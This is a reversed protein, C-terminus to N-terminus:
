SGTAKAIAVKIEAWAKSFWARLLWGFPASLCRGIWGRRARREILSEIESVLEETDFFWCVPPAPTLGNYFCVPAVREFLALEVEELPYNKAVKAIAEYNTENDVFVDSLAAWLKQEEIPVKVAKIKLGM